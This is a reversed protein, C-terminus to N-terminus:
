EFDIAGFLRNCVAPQSIAEILDNLAGGEKGGEKGEKQSRDAYPVQGGQRRGEMRLDYYITIVDWLKYSLQLNCDNLM